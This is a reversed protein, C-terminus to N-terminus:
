EDIFVARDGSRWGGEDELGHTHTVLITTAGGNYAHAIDLPSVGSVLGHMVLMGADIVRSLQHVHPATDTGTNEGLFFYAELDKKFFDATERSALLVTDTYEAEPQRIKIKVRSAGVLGDFMRKDALTGLKAAELRVEPVPAGVMKPLRQARVLRKSGDPMLLSGKEGSKM